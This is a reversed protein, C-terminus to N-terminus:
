DLNRLAIVRAALAQDMEALARKTFVRAASAEIVIEDEIVFDPPGEVLLRLGLIACAHSRAGIRPSSTDADSHIGM